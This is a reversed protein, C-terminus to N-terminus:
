VPETFAWRDAIKGNRFKIMALGSIDKNLKMGKIVLRFCLINNEYVMDTPTITIEPFAEILMRLMQKLGERDNPIDFTPNHNIFDEALFTDIWSDMANLNRSNVYEFFQKENNKIGDGIM